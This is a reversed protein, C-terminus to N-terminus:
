WQPPSYPDRLSHGDLAPSFARADFGLRDYITPAIDERLGRRVVKKDTTALFMYPADGHTKQGVDFGHDATIYVETRATLGLAKLEDLVRGTWQDDSIIGDTYQQSDEGYQHGAHDPYAFHVFFFFRQDRYQKLYQIARQAVVENEVLGNDFVDMHPRANFYPKGPDYDIHAKKGVVAVTVYSSGFREELREFITYGSPIPQYRANSFVGTKEPQYGTLIQSWGAKTDTTRLADIAVLRGRDAVGRLTPLEHRALCARISSREAGDWGFVIVNVPAKPATTRSAAARPAAIAHAGKAGRAAVLAMVGAALVFLLVTAALVRRASRRPHKAQLPPVVDAM